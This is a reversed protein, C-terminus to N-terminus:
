AVARAAEAPFLGALFGMFWDHQAKDHLAQLRDQEERTQAGPKGYAAWEAGQWRRFCAPTVEAHFQFAYTSPGYRFAQQPYWDSEALLEAGAPLGFEHFHSQSVLLPGPLLDGGTPRIEYYGFEHLGHERPGTYAGLVHAIQQGGQCIGLLPAGAKMCKEIWRHEEAMFPPNNAEAACYKGGYIVSGSVDADFVLEDGAFPRVVVPNLGAAAAYTYVRDDPPDDGHRILVMRKAM